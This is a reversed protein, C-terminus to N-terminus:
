VVVVRGDSENLYKPYLWYLRFGAFPDLKKIHSSVEEGNERDWEIFKDKGKILPYLWYEMLFEAMGISKTMKIMGKCLEIDDYAWYLSCEPSRFLELTATEPIWDREIRETFVTLFADELRQYECRKAWKDLLWKGVKVSKAMFVLEMVEHICLQQSKMIEKTNRDPCIDLTVMAELYYLYNKTTVGYESDITTVLRLMQNPIVPEDLSLHVLGGQLSQPDTLYEYQWQDFLSDANRLDGVSAYVKLMKSYLLQTPKPIDCMQKITIYDWVQRAFVSGGLTACSELVPIIVNHRPLYIQKQMIEHDFHYCIREADRPDWADLSKFYKYAKNVAPSAIITTPPPSSRVPSHQSQATNMSDPSLRQITPSSPFTADSMISSIIICIIMNSVLQHHIM